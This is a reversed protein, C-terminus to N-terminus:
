NCSNKYQEFEELIIAKFQEYPKIGVYLKNNIVFTPTGRVGVRNADNIDRQIENTTETSNICAKMKDPDLELQSQWKRINKNSIKDQHNLILSHMELFKDQKYACETVQAAYFANKHSKLPYDKIVVKVIGQSILETEIEPLVKEFFLKCYGCEYDSFIIMTVPADEDGIFFDNETGITVEVISNQDNENLNKTVLFGIRNIKKEVSNLKKLGFLFLIIVTLFLTYLILKDRM